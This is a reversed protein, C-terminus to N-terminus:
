IYTPGDRGEGLMGAHHRLPGPPLQQPMANPLRTRGPSPSGREDDRCFLAPHVQVILLIQNRTGLM